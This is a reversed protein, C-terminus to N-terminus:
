AEILSKQSQTPHPQDMRQGREWRQGAVLVRLGAPQVTPLDKLSHVAVDIRQELLARELEIVFVGDGGIRTLPVHTMADGTTRIPEIVIELGPFSRQLQAGVWRTQIMALTSAHTGVIM